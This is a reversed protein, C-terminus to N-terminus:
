IGHGIQWQLQSPYSKQSVFYFIDDVTESLSIAVALCMSTTSHVLEAHLSVCMVFLAIRKSITAAYCLGDYRFALNIKLMWLMGVHQFGLFPDHSQIADILHIKKNSTPHTPELSSALAPGEM